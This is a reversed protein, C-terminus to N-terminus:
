ASVSVGDLLLYPLLATGHREVTSSIGLVADRFLEFVNVSLMADKVRAVRSGDRVTFGLSVNGTIIGSFSNSMSAGLLDEVWLQASSALGELSDEGPLLRTCFLSPAPQAGVSSRFGHGTPEDNCEAASDLNHYFSALVGRDVLLRRGAPVGEDDVARRFPADESVLDTLYTIREDFLREGKRNAWPSIRKAVAKGSLCDNFVRLLSSLARPTFLVRYKGSEIKETSSCLRYEESVKDVLADFGDFTRGVRYDYVTLFDGEVNRTVGCHWQVYGGDVAFDLGATSLIRSSFREKGMGCFALVGDGLSRLREVAAACESAAREPTIGEIHSPDFPFREVDPQPPFAFGAKKGFRALSVATDAVREDGPRTSVSFGVRGDKLVRVATGQLDSSTSEKIRNNEFSVSLSERRSTYVEAADSAAAAKELIKEPTM